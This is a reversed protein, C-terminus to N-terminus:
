DSTWYTFLDLHMERINQLVIFHEPYHFPVRKFTCRCGNINALHSTDLAAHSAFQTKKLYMYLGIGKARPICDTNHWHSHSTRVHSNNAFGNQWGLLNQLCFKFFEMRPWSQIGRIRNSLVNRKFGCVLSVQCVSNLVNWSVFNLSVTNVTPSHLICTCQEFYKFSCQLSVTNVYPFAM